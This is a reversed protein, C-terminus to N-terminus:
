LLHGAANEGVAPQLGACSLRRARARPRGQHGGSRPRRQAPLRHPQNVTAAGRAPERPMRPCIMGPQAVVTTPQCPAVAPTFAEAILCALSRTSIMSWRSSERKSSMVTCAGRGHAQGLVDNKEHEDYSHSDAQRDQAIRRQDRRARQSSFAPEVYSRHEGRRYDSPHETRESAILDADALAAPQELM